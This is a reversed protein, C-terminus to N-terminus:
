STEVLFFDGVVRQINFGVQRLQHEMCDRINGINNKKPPKWANRKFKLIGM